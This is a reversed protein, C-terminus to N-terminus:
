FAASNEEGVLVQEAPLSELIRRAPLVEAGQVVSAAHEEIGSPRM